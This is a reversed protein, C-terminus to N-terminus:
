SQPLQIALQFTSGTDLHYEAELLTATSAVRQMLIIVTIPMMWEDFIRADTARAEEDMPFLDYAVKLASELAAVSIKRIEGSGRQDRICALRKKHLEFPSLLFIVVLSYQHELRNAPTSIANRIGEQILFDLKWVEQDMLM